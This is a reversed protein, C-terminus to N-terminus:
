IGILTIYDIAAEVPFGAILWSGTLRDRIMSRFIYYQKCLVINNNVRLFECMNFMCEVHKSNNILHQTALLADIHM